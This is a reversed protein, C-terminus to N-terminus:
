INLDLSLPSENIFPYSSGTLWDGETAATNGMLDEITTNADAEYFVVRLENTGNPGYQTHLQELTHAEHLAWCPPCWTASVDIVAIIGQDLIDEYLNITNGDLDVVSFDPATQANIGLTLLAGAMWTLFKKM